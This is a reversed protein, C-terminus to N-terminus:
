GYQNGGVRCALPKAPMNRHIGHIGLSRYPWRVKEPHRRSLDILSVHPSCSRYHVARPNMAPFRPETAFGVSNRNAPRCRYVVNGSKSCASREDGACDSCQWNVAWACRRPGSTNISTANAWAFSGDLWRRGCNVSSAASRRTNLGANPLGLGSRM